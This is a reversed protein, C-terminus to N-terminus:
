SWCRNLQDFENQWSIKERAVAVPNTGDAETLIYSKWKDSNWLKGPLKLLNRFIAHGPRHCALTIARSSVSLEPANEEKKEAKRCHTDAVPRRVLEAARSDKAARTSTRPRSLTRDFRLVPEVPDNNETALNGPLARCRM